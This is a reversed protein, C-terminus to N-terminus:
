AIKKLELYRDRLLVLFISFIFTGLTAMFVLIMRKPKDKKDFLSDIAQDTKKEIVKNAKKELLKKPNLIQGNANFAFLLSYVALCCYLFKKM